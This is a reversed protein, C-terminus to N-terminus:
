RQGDQDRHAYRYGLVLDRFAKHKLDGALHALMWRYEPTEAKWLQAYYCFRGASIQMFQLCFARQHFLRGALTGCIAAMCDRRDECPYMEAWGKIAAPNREIHSELGDVTGVRWWFREMLLSVPLRAVELRSPCPLEFIESYNLCVELVLRHRGGLKPAELRPEM